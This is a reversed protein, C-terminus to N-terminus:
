GIALLFVLFLCLVVVYMGSFNAHFWCIVWNFLIMKWVEIKPNWTLKGPHIRKQQNGGFMSSFERGLQKIDLEGWDSDLGDNTDM